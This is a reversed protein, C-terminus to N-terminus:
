ITRDGLVHSLEAGPLKFFSVVITCFYTSEAVSESRSRCETKQIRFESNQSGRGEMGADRTRESLAKGSFGEPSKTRYQIIPARRVRHFKPSCCATLMAADSFRGSM